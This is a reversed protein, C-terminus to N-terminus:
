KVGFEILDKNKETGVKVDNWSRYVVNELVLSGTRVFLRCEIIPVNLDRADTARPYFSLNDLNGCRNEATVSQAQSLELPAGRQIDNM